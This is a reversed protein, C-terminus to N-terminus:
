SEEMPVRQRIKYFSFTLWADRTQPQVCHFHFSLQFSVGCFIFWNKMLALILSREAQIQVVFMAITHGTGSTNLREWRYLLFLGNLIWKVQSTSYMNLKWNLTMWLWHHAVILSKIEAVFLLVNRNKNKPTLSAPYAMKKLELTGLQSSADCYPSM